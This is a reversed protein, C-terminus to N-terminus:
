MEKEFFSVCRSIIVRLKEIEFLWFGTETTEKENRKDNRKGLDFNRETRHSHVVTDRASLKTELYDFTQYESIENGTTTM